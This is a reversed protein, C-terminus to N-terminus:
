FLVGLQAGITLQADKPNGDKDSFVKNKTSAFALEGRLYTMKDIWKTPTVTVTIVNDIGGYIGTTGDHAYELRVPVEIRDVKFGAYAAIGYSDNSNVDLKIYDINVGFKIDDIEMDVIVDIIDTGSKEDYYSVSYELDGAKRSLGLAASQRQPGSNTLEGYIEFGSVSTTIRTGPYYIPQVSWLLSRSIQKNQYSVTSEYGVNTAIQGVAISTKNIKYEFWGYQIGTTIPTGQASPSNPAVSQANIAGLGINVKVDSNSSDPTSVDVLFDNLQTNLSRQGLGPNQLFLAGGTIGGKFDLKRDIKISAASTLSPLSALTFSLAIGLSLYPSRMLQEMTTLTQFYYGGIEFAEYLSIVDFIFIDQL